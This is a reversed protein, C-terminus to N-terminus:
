DSVKVLYLFSGLLATYLSTVVIRIWLFSGSAYLESFLAIGSSITNLLISSFFVVAAVQWFYFKTQSIRNLYNHLIFLTLTKSFLHMGWLDALMDQLFATYATFLLLTTRDKSKCLWLLFLFVLDPEAGFITLHRLLVAQILVLTTGWLLLEINGTRKM